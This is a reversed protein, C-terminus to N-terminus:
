PAVSDRERVGSYTGFGPSHERLYTKVPKLGSFDVVYRLQPNRPIQGGCGCACKRPFRNGTVTRLRPAESRTTPATPMPHEANQYQVSAPM